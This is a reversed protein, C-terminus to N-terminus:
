DGAAQGDRDPGAHLRGRPPQHRQLADDRQKTLPFSAAWCTMRSSKWRPSTAGSGSWCRTWPRRRSRTGTTRTTSGRRSGTACPKTKPGSRRAWSEAPNPYVSEGLNTRRKALLDPNPDTDAMKAEAEKQRAMLYEVVRGHGPYATLYQRDVAQWYAMAGDRLTEGTESNGLLVQRQVAEPTLGLRGLEQDTFAGINVTRELPTTWRRVIDGALRNACAAMVKDKPFQIASLGFGMYNQPCGLGDTTILFQDFNNRNSKKQRQFESTLDLFISHGIM